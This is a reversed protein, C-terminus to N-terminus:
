LSTCQGFLHLRHYDADRPRYDGSDIAGGDDNTAQNGSFTSGTVVLTATSGRQEGSAIAGGDTNATNGSFTSGTM